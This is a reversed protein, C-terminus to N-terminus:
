PRWTGGARVAREPAREGRGRGPPRSRSRWCTTASSGATPSGPRWIPWRGGAAAGSTSCTSGTPWGAPWGPVLPLVHADLAAVVTQNSEEAMVENFRDYAAYPVGRGHRFADAVESEVSGLVAVWQMSAALNSTAASRTLWAAHEAPLHYTMAQPDHGVVRGCTMAGLWERVYRESLGAEDALEHSTAHPRRSMTDLLGTRHGLSIMLALGAANFMETLRAAFADSKSQDLSATNCTLCM